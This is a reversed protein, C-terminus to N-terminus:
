TYISCILRRARIQKLADSGSSAIKENSVLLSHSRLHHSLAKSSDGTALSKMGLDLFGLSHWGGALLAHTTLDKGFPAQQGDMFNLILVSQPAALSSVEDVFRPQHEGLYMIVGEALFVTPRQTEFGASKLAAGLAGPELLDVPVFTHRCLAKMDLSQFADQCAAVMQESEVALAQSAAAMCGLRFARTDLGAGLNVFQADSKLQAAITEDIFKTRVATWDLHFNPWLGFAPAGKEAFYESLLKGKPGVLKAAWPDVVLADSGKETELAREYAIMYASDTIFDSPSVKESVAAGKM